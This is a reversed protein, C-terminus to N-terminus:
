RGLMGDLLASSLAEAVAAQVDGPGRGKRRPGPCRARTDAGVGGTVGSGARRVMSPIASPHGGVPVYAERM